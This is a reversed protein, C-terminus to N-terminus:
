PKLLDEFSLLQNSYKGELELLYKKRWLKGGFGTLSGDAGIVRHCPIIISLYNAGNGRAVARSATPNGILKAIRHYTSTTGYPLKQLEKWIRMEFPTGKLDLPTAFSQTDGTFYERLEDEMSQLLFHDGEQLNFQYRKEVRALIKDVGGRDHWELFCIGNETTGCIMDGLPSQLNKYIISM